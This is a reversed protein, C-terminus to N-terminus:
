RWKRMVEKLIDEEAQIEIERESNKVYFKLLIYKEPLCELIKDIWEVFVIGDLEIIEFFGIDELEEFKELRYFDFHYIKFKETDYENLITFTPSVVEDEDGGIAKVFFKVFQTKGAGLEGILGYFMKNQSIEAFIKALKKLDNLSKIKVKM